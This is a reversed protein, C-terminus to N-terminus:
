RSEYQKTVTNYVPNYVPSRGGDIVWGGTSLVWRLVDMCYIAAPFGRADIDQAIQM